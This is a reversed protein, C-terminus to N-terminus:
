GLRDSVHLIFALNRAKISYVMLVNSVFALIGTVLSIVQFHWMLDYAINQSYNKPLHCKLGADELKEIGLKTVKCFGETPFYPENSTLYKNNLSNDIALAIIVNTIILLFQFVLSGFAMIQNKGRFDMLNKALGSIDNGNFDKLLVKFFDREVRKWSVRLILHSLAGVIFPWYLYAYQLKVQFNETRFFIM